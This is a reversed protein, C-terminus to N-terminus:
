RVAEAPLQVVRRVSGGPRDSRRTLDLTLAVGAPLRDDSGGPPWTEVWGAERTYFEWRAGEVGGILSQSQGVAGPRPAIVRIFSDDALMYRVSLRGNPANDSLRQFSVGTEDHVLASFGSAQEFDLTLIHMARQLDAMSDLRGETRAQVRVISDVLTFGAVGILGFLALSVLVEVLTFGAEGRRMIM